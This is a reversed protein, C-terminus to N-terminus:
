IGLNDGLVNSLLPLVPLQLIVLLIRIIIQVSLIQDAAAGLDYWPITSVM